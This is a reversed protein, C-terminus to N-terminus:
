MIEFEEADCIIQQKEWNNNKMDEVFESPLLLNYRDVYYILDGPWVWKGDTFFSPVGAIGNEPNIVDDCTGCCYVIISGSQLYQLIKTKDEGYQAKGIYDKISPDTSEAHPMECYFGQRILKKM